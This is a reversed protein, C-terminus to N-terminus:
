TGQRDKAPLDGVRHNFWIKLRWSDTAPERHFIRVNRYVGDVSKEGNVGEVELLVSVLATDEYLDCVLEEAPEIRFRRNEAKALDILFEDRTVISKDARRFRLTQDLVGRFFPVGEEGRTEEVHIQDNIARIAAEDVGKSKSM